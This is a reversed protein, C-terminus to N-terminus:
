RKAGARDTDDYQGHGRLAAKASRIQSEISTLESLVEPDDADPLLVERVAQLERLRLEADTQIASAEATSM